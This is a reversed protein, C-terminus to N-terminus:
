LVTVTIQYDLAATGSITIVYRTGAATTGAAAISGTAGAATFSGSWSAGKGPPVTFAFHDVDTAASLSGCFSLATGLDTATEPTDNAEIERVGGNACAAPAPGPVVPPVVV